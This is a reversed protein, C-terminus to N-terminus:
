KVAKGILNDSAVMLPFHKQTIRVMNALYINQQSIGFRM